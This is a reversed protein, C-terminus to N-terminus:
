KALIIKELLQSRYFLIVYHYINKVFHEAITNYIQETTQERLNILIKTLNKHSVSCTPMVPLSNESCNALTQCIIGHKRIRGITEMALIVNHCFYYMLLTFVNM